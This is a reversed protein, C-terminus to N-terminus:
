WYWSAHEGTLEPKDSNRYVAALTYMPGLILFIHFLFTARMIPIAGDQSPNYAFYLTCPYEAPGPSRVKLRHSSPFPPSTYLRGCWFSAIVFWVVSRLVTGGESGSGAQLFVSHRENDEFERQDKWCDCSMRWIKDSMMECACFREREWFHNQLKPM